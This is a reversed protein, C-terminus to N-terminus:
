RPSPPSSDRAAEWLALGALLLVLWRWRPLDRAMQGFWAFLPVGLCFFLLGYRVWLVPQSRTVYALLLFALAGAFGGAVLLPARRTEGAPCRVLFFGAGLAGLFIPLNAGFFFFVLDRWVDSFDLSHRSPNQEFYAQLYVHRASFYSLVDGTSYWSLLLWALPPLLLILAPLFPFRRQGQWAAVLFLPSIAWAELRMTGAFALVLAGFGWRGACAATLAAVVLTAHPVDTMSAASYLLHMPNFAVFLFALVAFLRRRTLRFTLTHVLLCGAAGFLTTLLRAAMLPELGPLSFLVALAQYGPLWFGYFDRPEPLGEGWRAALIGTQEAYSWADQEPNPLFALAALRPALAVLFLVIGGRWSAVGQRAATTLAPRGLHGLPIEAMRGM